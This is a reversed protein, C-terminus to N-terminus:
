QGEADDRHTGGDHDGRQQKGSAQRLADDGQGLREPDCHQYEQHDGLDREGVLEEPRPPDDTRDPAEARIKVDVAYGM